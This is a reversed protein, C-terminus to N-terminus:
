SKTLLVVTEFHDTQPFMDFIQLSSIAYGAQKLNLKQLDRVLNTPHCSIYLINKSGTAAIKNLILDSCGQRPPDLLILDASLPRRKVFSDCDSTFFYIRKQLNLATIKKVAATTLDSNLEVAEFFVAPNKVALDLTFNGAGAYLETIQKPQVGAVLAAVHDQLLINVQTNVQAFSLGQGKDGIKNYEFLEDQSIKLEYKTMEPLKKLSQKLGVIEDSIRSDAILCADIDVITHTKEEFYGLLSDQRKLQIRNRYHLTKPSRVTPLLDYSFDPLFKKFLEKLLMEKQYIQEDDAIQQWSCGGCRFSYKCPPERRSDGPKIIELIGGLLYNKEVATIKIKLQDKPASKSIFVVLSKDQFTIRAVGDGGIAM